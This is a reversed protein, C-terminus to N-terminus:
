CPRAETSVAKLPPLRVVDTALAELLRAGPGTFGRSRHLDVQARRLLRAGQRLPNRGGPRRGAARDEVLDQADDVLQYAWGVDRGFRRLTEVTAPDAGAVRGGATLAFAALVTTKGRYLRRAAGTCRGGTAVDVAQGGAMGAFGFTAGWERALDAGNRSRGLFEAARALLGVAVLIAGASGVLRHTAPEGRRRESDDMCPLDDLALSATHTLEVAVAADLADHVSGGVAEAAALTLVPRWRRGRRGELGVALRLAEDLPGLGTSVEVVADRLRADLLPTVRASFSRLDPRASTPLSLAVSNM